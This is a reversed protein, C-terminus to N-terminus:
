EFAVFKKVTKRGNSIIEVMYIGKSPIDFVAVGQNETESALLVGRNDYLKCVSNDGVGSVYAVGGHCRITIEDASGADDVATPQSAAVVTFAAEVSRTNYASQASPLFRATVRVFKSIATNDYRVTYQTEGNLTIETDPTDDDFSLLVTGDTVANNGVGYLGVVVDTQGDVDVDDVSISITPNVFEVFVVSVYKSDSNNGFTLTATVIGDTVPTYPVTIKGESNSNQKGSYLVNDSEDKISINVDNMPRSLTIKLERDEYTKAVSEFTAVVGENDIINNEGSGISVASNGLNESTTMTNNTIVNDSSTKVLSMAYNDTTVITNGSITNGSSKVQISGTIENGTITTNIANTNNITVNGVILNNSVIVNKASSNLTVGKAIANNIAKTDSSLTIKGGITNDKVISGANATVNGSVSNNEAICNAGITMSGGDNINNNRFTNNENIKFGFSTSISAKNLTNNEVLQGQGAIIIGVSISSGEKGYFVNNTITLYDPEGYYKSNYVSAYLINGVNGSITFVNNDFTTHHSGNYVVVCTSGGNNRVDILSNKITTYPAGDISLEGRGKGIRADYVGMYIGDVTANQVGEILFHTNLFTINASVNGENDKSYASTLQSGDAGKGIKFSCSDLVADATTSIIYVLKNICINLKRFEGQFDLVSEPAVIDKLRLTDTDDKVEFYDGLNDKTIVYSDAAKVSLSSLMCLSLVAFLKTFSKNM